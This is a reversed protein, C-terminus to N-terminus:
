EKRWNEAFESGECQSTEHFWKEIDVYSKPPRNELLAECLKCFHFRYGKNQYALVWGDRRWKFYELYATKNSMLSLLYDAMFKASEFDDMSIYSHPPVLNEYIKRRMVIPVSPLQYRSFYKETIYDKCVANEIAIYFFNASSLAKECVSHRGCAKRKHPNEACAGYKDITIYKALKEVALERKSSTNCNSVLWFIAGNKKELISKEDYPLNESQLNLEKNNEPSIWYGGYVWPVDSDYRYTMTWNFFNHPAHLSNRQVTRYSPPAEVTLFVYRQFPFRIKPLDDLQFDGDMFHFIIADASNVLSRDATVLCKSKLDPCADLIHLRNEPSEGFFTTWVLMIKQKMKLQQSFYYTGTHSPPFGVFKNYPRWSVLYLLCGVTFAVFLRTRLQMKMMFYILQKGTGTVISCGIHWFDSGM